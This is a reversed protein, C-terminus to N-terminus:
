PRSARQRTGPESRRTLDAASPLALARPMLRWVFIATAASAMATLLKVVGDLRYLPQWLAWINFLHTTGCLIIFLAFLSFVAHHALDKRKRAFYILAVPISFYALAIVLDSGFHLWIVDPEYNMCQRRPTFIEFLKAVFGQSGASASHVHIAMHGGETKGGLWGLM